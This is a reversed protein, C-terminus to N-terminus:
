RLLDHLVRLSRINVESECHFEIYKLIREALANRSDGTMPVLMAEEFTSRLISDALSTLERTFPELDQPAPSFGLIRCFDTLFKIHFNSFDTRVADLLLISKELWEFLGPELAGERVVRYLVESIFLSITSKYLNDRMGNLPYKVSLSKVTYLSSKPNVTIYAELVNLPLFLSMPFKRGLGRVLFSRRGYEESYTHIVLSNEAFKTTHLIILDANVTM